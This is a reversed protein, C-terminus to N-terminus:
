PWMGEVRDGLNVDSDQVMSTLTFIATEYNRGSLGAPAMTIHHPAEIFSFLIDLM